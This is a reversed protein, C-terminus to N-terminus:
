AADANGQKEAWKPAIWGLVVVVAVLPISILPKSVVWGALDAVGTGIGQWAQAASLGTSVADPVPPVSQFATTAATGAGLGATVKAGTSMPDAAKEPEQPMFDPAVEGVPELFLAAERTRRALLGPATKGGFKSYLKFAEAAGARDGANLKRIVSSKRLAGAGVNYSLSCLADFENQNLAVTVMQKVATEHKVIERKLGDEADARTWVMGMTVGETCGWGITPIDLKGNIREQYATCSGDPLKRGFGEFKQIISLGRDSIKM